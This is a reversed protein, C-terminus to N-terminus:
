WDRWQDIQDVVQPFRAACLIQEYAEYLDEREITAIFHHSADLRNVDQVSQKLLRKAVARTLKPAARLEHVFKAILSRCELLPLNADCDEWSPFWIRDVLSDLTLTRLFEARAEARKRGAEAQETAQVEIEAVRM